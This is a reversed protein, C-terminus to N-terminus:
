SAIGFSDSSATFTSQASFWKCVSRRPHNRIKIFKGASLNWQDTDAPDEVRRVGPFLDGGTRAEHLQVGAEYILSWVDRLLDVFSECVDERAFAKRVEVCGDTAARALKCTFRAFQLPPETAARITRMRSVSPIMLMGALSLSMM